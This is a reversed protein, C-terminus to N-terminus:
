TRIYKLRYICHKIETQINDCLSQLFQESMGGRVSEIFDYLNQFYAVPTDIVKCPEKICLDIEDYGAAYCEVFEDLEDGIEDYFIEMAKHRALTKDRNCLHTFKTDMQAKFVAQAIQQCPPIDKKVAVSKPENGFFDVLNIKDSM